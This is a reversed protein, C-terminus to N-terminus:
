QARRRAMEFKNYIKRGIRMHKGSGKCWWCRRFVKPKDENRYHKGTGKCCWCDHWPNWVCSGAYTVAMILVVIVLVFWGKVTLM